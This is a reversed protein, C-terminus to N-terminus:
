KFVMSKIKKRIRILTANGHWFWYLKRFLRSNLQWEWRVYGMHHWDMLQPYDSRDKVGQWFPDAVSDMPLISFPNRFPNVEYKKCLLSWISQDHRNEVFGEYDNGLSSPDDTLIRRDQAYLLYENMMQISQATKKVLIVTAMIQPSNIYREEDCGLLIFADRKTWMREINGLAFCMIGQGSKELANILYHVDDIFSIGSDTYLVYDGNQVRSLADLIIYPKWLWYGGGRQEKLIDANKKRFEDSLDNPSYEVVRDVKGYKYATKANIKQANKYNRDAYNVALIM